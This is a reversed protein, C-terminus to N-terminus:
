WRIRSAPRSEPLAAFLCGHSNTITESLSASASATYAGCLTLLAARTIAIAPSTRPTSRPRQAWFMISAAQFSPTPEHGFPMLTSSAAARTTPLATTTKSHKPWGARGRRDEGADGVDAGALGTGHHDAAAAASRLDLAAGDQVCAAARRARQRRATGGGALQLRVGFADLRRLARGARAALAPVGAA